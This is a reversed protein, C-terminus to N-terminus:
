VSTNLCVRRSFPQTQTRASCVNDTSYGLKSLSIDDPRSGSNEWARGSKGYHELMAAGFGRVAANVGPGLYAATTFEFGAPISTISGLLGFELHASDSTRGRVSPRQVASGAMANSWPSLVLANTQKANFLVYPGGRTGGVLQSGPLWRAFRTGNEMGGVMQNYYVLYGLDEASSRGIEFSPFASLVQEKAQEVTGGVDTGSRAAEHRQLFLVLPVGPTYDRWIATFCRAVPGCSYKQIVDQYGGLEDHGAEHALPASPTLEVGHLRTPGSKLWVEGDVGLTYSGGSTVNITLRPPELAFVTSMTRAMLLRVSAGLSM